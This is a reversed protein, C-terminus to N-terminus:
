GGSDIIPGDIRQYEFRRTVPCLGGSSKRAKEVFLFQQRAFPNMGLGQEDGGAQQMAASAEESFLASIGFVATMPQDLQTNGTCDAVGVCRKNIAKKRDAQTMVLSTLDYDKAVEGCMEAVETMYAFKKHNDVRIEPPLAKGLWDLVVADCGGLRDATMHIAEDLGGNVANKHSECWNHILLNKGIRRLVLEVNPLYKPNLTDMTFGNVIEVFPVSARCSIIRPHLEEDPQETTILCVKKGAMAFNSAIQCAVITKGSAPPGIGLHADQKHMGGGLAYDLSTIGTPLCVRMINKRALVAETFERVTDESDLARDLHRKERTLASMVGDSQWHKSQINQLYVRGVRRKRLWYPLGEPMLWLFGSLDNSKLYNFVSIASQVESPALFRGQAALTNAMVEFVPVELQFDPNFKRMTPVNERIICYMANYIPQDFDAIFGGESDRCLIPIMKELWAQDHLVAWLLALEFWEENEDIWANPSQSDNNTDM